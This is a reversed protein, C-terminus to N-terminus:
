LGRKKDDTFDKSVNVQNDLAKFFLDSIESDNFISPYKKRLVKIISILYDITVGQTKIIKMMSKKQEDFDKFFIDNESDVHEGDILSEKGELYKVIKKCIFEAKEQTKCSIRVLVSEGAQFNRISMCRLNTGFCGDGDVRRIFFSEGDSIEKNCFEVLEILFSGALNNALVFNSTYHGEM